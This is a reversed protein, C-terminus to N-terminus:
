DLYKITIPDNLKTEFATLMFQYVSCGNASKEFRVFEYGTNHNLNGPLGASAQGFGLISTLLIKIIVILRKM